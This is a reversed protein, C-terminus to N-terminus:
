IYWQLLVALIRKSIRAISWSSMAHINNKTVLHAPDIIYLWGREDTSMGMIPINHFTIPKMKEKAMDSYLSREFLPTLLLGYQGGWYGVIKAQYNTDILQIQEPDAGALGAACFLVAESPQLTGELLGNLLGTGYQVFKHIGPGAPTRIIGTAPINALSLVIKHFVALVAGAVVWILCDDPNSDTLLTTFPADPYRCNQIQNDLLDWDYDPFTHCLADVVLNKVQEPAGAMSFRGLLNRCSKAFAGSAMSKGVLDIKTFGGLSITVNFQVEGTCLENVAKYGMQEPIAMCVTSIYPDERLLSYKAHNEVYERGGEKSLSSYIVSIANTDAKIPIFSTTEPNEAKETSDEEIFIDIQWGYESLLLSFAMLKISRTFIRQGEAKASWLQAIFAIFDGEEHRGRPPLFMSHCRIRPAHRQILATAKQKANELKNCMGDRSIISVAYKEVKGQLMRIAGEMTRDISGHIHLMIASAILYSLVTKTLPVSLCVILSGLPDLREGDHKILEDMALEELHGTSTIMKGRLSEYINLGHYRKAEIDGHGFGRILDRLPDYSYKTKLPSGFEQATAVETARSISVQVVNKILSIDYISNTQKAGHTAVNGINGAM